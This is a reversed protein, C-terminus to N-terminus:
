AFWKYAYRNYKILTHYSKNMTKTGGCLGREWVHNRLAYSPYRKSFCRFEDLSVHYVYWYRDITRAHRWSSTRHTHRVTVLTMRFLRAILCVCTLVQGWKPFYIHSVPITCPGWHKSMWSVCFVWWLKTSMNKLFDSVFQFSLTCPTVTGIDARDLAYTQLLEGAPTTPESGVPAM